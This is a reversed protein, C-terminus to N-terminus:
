TAAEDPAGSPEYNGEDYSQRKFYQVLECLAWTGIGAGILVPIGYSTVFGNVM